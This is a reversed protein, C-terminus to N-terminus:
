LFKFLYLKFLLFSVSSPLNSIFSHSNFLICNARWIEVNQIKLNLWSHILFLVESRYNPIWMHPPGVIDITRHWRIYPFQACTFKPIQLPDQFLYGAHLHGPIVTTLNQSLWLKIHIILQPTTTPAGLRQMTWPDVIHASMFYYIDSYIIKFYYICVCFFYVSPYM